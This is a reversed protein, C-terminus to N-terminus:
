ASLRTFEYNLIALAALAATDSKLVRSGLSILKFGKERAADIERPTFDGEPGISVAVSAGKKYDTIVEDIYRAEDSLAAILALGYNSPRKLFESFDMIEGVEPLRSAGCQKSAERAIRRWRQAASTRKAKNWDVITRDTMVPIISRAGLETAKEVIFDMKGKKPIAQVLTIDPTEREPVSRTQVIEVVLSRRGANKVFGAYEKGMGDFVTVEDFKKLRMVDLIHHAEDGDISIVNGKILDRPVYFRSM